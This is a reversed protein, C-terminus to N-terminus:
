RSRSVPRAPQQETFLAPYGGRGNMVARREFLARSPYDPLDTPDRYECLAFGQRRYYAHLDWNNTWVDIRILPTGLERSAVDTAWNLLAAGLGLGAYSRRVIVRHVYLAREARRQAPWVPNDASDVPDDLSITVTAAATAGDQVIWTKGDGLDHLLREDRKGSDPWPKAWQDTNKGRLWERAEESLQRLM